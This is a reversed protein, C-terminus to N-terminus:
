RPASEICVTVPASVGTSSAAAGEELTPRGHDREQVEGRGDAIDANRPQDAHLRGAYGNGALGAQDGRSDEGGLAVEGQREHNSQREPAAITPSL